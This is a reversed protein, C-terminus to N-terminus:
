DTGALEDGGRRWWVLGYIAFGLMLLHFVNLPGVLKSYPKFFEWVFRQAAYFIILAHFAHAQTWSKGRKRAAVFYWAFAAMALSEYLQVPHRGIGDGLDVAWPLSTASGYTFDPLGSFLCGLRGLAIGVCLPLVFAAGTSQRVGHRWKWLEVAVIGGALAGAVSHSPAAAISRLSNASGLLWAGALAGLALSVHYSTTTLRALAQAAEPWHRYQWRAALAAGSWAALDGLYHAWWATPLHIMPPAKAYDAM